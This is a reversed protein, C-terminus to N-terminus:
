DRHGLGLPDNPDIGEMFPRKRERHTIQYVLGIWNSVVGEATDHWTNDLRSLLLAEPFAPPETGEALAADLRGRYEDLM